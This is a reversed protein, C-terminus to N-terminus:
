LERNINEICRVNLTSDALSLHNLDDEKKLFSMTRGFTKNASIYSQSASKLTVSFVSTESKEKFAVTRKLEWTITM